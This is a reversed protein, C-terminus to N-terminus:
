MDPSAVDPPFHSARTEEESRIQVDGQVSKGRYSDFSGRGGSGSSDKRKRWTESSQMRRVLEHRLQQGFDTNMSNVIAPQLWIPLTCPSVTKHSGEVALKEGTQGILSLLHQCVPCCRKSVGIIPDFGQVICYCSFGTWYICIIM